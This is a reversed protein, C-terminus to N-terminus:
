ITIEIIFVLAMQDDKILNNNYTSAAYYTTSPDNPTSTDVIALQNIPIGSVINDVDFEALFKVTVEGNDYDRITDQQVVLEVRQYTSDQYASEEDMADVVIEHFGRSSTEDGEEINVFGNTDTEINSGLALYGFHEKSFLTKLGKEKGEIFIINDQKTDLTTM